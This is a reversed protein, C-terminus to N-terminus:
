SNSTNKRERISDFVKAVHFEGVCVLSVLDLYNFVLFSYFCKLGNCNIICICPFVFWMEVHERMVFVWM